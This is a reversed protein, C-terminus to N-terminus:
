LPWSKMGVLKASFELIDGDIDQIEENLFDVEAFVFGLERDDDIGSVVGTEGFWQRAVKKAYRSIVSARAEAETQALADMTIPALDKHSPTITYTYQTM